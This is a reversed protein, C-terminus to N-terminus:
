ERHFGRKAAEIFGALHEVHTSDLKRLEALIDSLCLSQRFLIQYAQKLAKIDERSFGARKLGVLNLGHVTGPVGDTIMFPLVDQTVKCNGGIMAFRGIHIFQHVMVGGSIFARNEIHVHGGIGTSPAIIINNGLKCDHGIHALNMMFLHDGIITSQEVKSARHITVSERLVNHSGIELYSEMAENFGLDQPIGGLVAHEFVRNGHQMRTGKKIVAHSAIMNNDGLVVDKEIIAYPGIQNGQGLEASPDVIATPHITNSM